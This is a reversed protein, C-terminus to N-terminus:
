DEEELDNLTETRSDNDRESVIVSVEGNRSSEGGSTPLGGLDNSEERRITSQLITLSSSEDPSDGLATTIVGEKGARQNHAFLPDTVPPTYGLFKQQERYLETSANDAKKQTILTKEFIKYEPESEKFAEWQTQSMMKGWKNASDAKNPSFFMNPTKCGCHRCKGAKLCDQCHYARWMAQENIHPANHPRNFFLYNGEVFDRM